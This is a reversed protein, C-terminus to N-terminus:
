SGNTELLPAAASVDVSQDTTAIALTVNVDSVTAVNVRVGTTEAKRFGAREVSVTYNGVQLYPFAYIGAQDTTASQRTGTDVNLVTVSVTPIVAGSTDSITGRITGRDQAKLALAAFLCLTVSRLKQM